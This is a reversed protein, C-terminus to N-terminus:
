QWGGQSIYMAVSCSMDFPYWNEYGVYIESTIPRFVDNLMYNVTGWRLSTSMLSFHEPMAGTPKIRLLVVEGTTSCGSLSFGRYTVYGRYAQYADRDRLLNLFYVDGYGNCIILSFYQNIHKTEVVGMSNIISADFNGMRHYTATITSSNSDTKFTCVDGDCVTQAGVAWAPGCFLLIFIVAGPWSGGISRIISLFVKM